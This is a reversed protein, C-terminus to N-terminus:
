QIKKDRKRLIKAALVVINDEEDGLGAGILDDIKKGPMDKMLRILKLRVQPFKNTELTRKIQLFGADGKDKLNEIATFVVVDELDELATTLMSIIESGPLDKIADLMRIKTTPFRNSKIHKKFIELGKDLNPPELLVLIIANRIGEEDESGLANDFFAAAIDDKYKDPPIEKNLYKSLLWIYSAKTNQIPENKYAKILSLIHEESLSIKGLIEFIKGKLEVNTDPKILSIIASIGKQGKKSLQKLVLTKEVMNKKDFDNLIKEIIKVPDSSSFLRSFFGQKPPNKNKASKFAKVSKSAM